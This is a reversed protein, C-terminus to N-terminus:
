QKVYFLRPGDCPRVDNILTDASHTFFEKGGLCSDILDSGEAFTLELDVDEQQVYQYTGTATDGESTYKIFTDDPRFVYYTRFDVTDYDTVTGTWSSISKVLEWREVPGSMAEMTDEGNNPQCSILLAM